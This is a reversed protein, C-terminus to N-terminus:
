VSSNSCTCANTVQRIEHLLDMRQLESKQELAQELVWM